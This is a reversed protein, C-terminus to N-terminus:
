FIESYGDASGFAVGVFDGDISRQSRDSFEFIEMEAHIWYRHLKETRGFDKRRYWLRVLDRVDDRCMWTEVLKLIFGTAFIQSNGRTRAISVQTLDMSAAFGSLVEGSWCKPMLTSDLLLHLDVVDKRTRTHVVHHVMSRSGPDPASIAVGSTSRVRLYPM